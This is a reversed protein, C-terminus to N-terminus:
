APVKSSGNVCHVAYAASQKDAFMAVVLGVRDRVIYILNGRYRDEFDDLHWPLRYDSGDSVRREGSETSLDDRSGHHSVESKETHNPKDPLM